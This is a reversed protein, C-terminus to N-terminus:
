TAVFNEYMEELFFKSSYFLFPGERTCVIFPCLIKARPLLNM